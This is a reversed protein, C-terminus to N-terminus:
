FLGIYGFHIKANKFILPNGQQAGLAYSIAFVGVKTGLAIGLGFGYPFDNIEQEVSRTQTYALDGFAYVYSNQGFIVRFEATLVNYWSAFISEEDFGRLIRNGGIRFLENNYLPNPSIIIGSRIRGLVTGWKSIPFFHQHELEFSYQYSRLPISDYLQEYSYDPNNDDTIDLIQTNKRIRKLGFSATVQSSFGKRPNFRYDLNRYQYHVGFTSNRIDLQSPLQRTTRIRLTDINLLNTTTNRWFGKVSNNGGFLYEFGVDVIIDIYSSDRKYLQFGLNTGFPLNAIYPYEFALELESTGVKLQQWALKIRKGTGFPNLLDINVLGTLEIRTRNPVNPDDNPQVGVLIDFQSARKNALFLNIEAKDEVFIIYPPKFTQLYALENIRRQIKQVKSEDYLKGEQLGLYSSLFKRGIRVKGEKKGKQKRANIKIPDLRILPGRNIHLQASIQQEEIRISDLYVQAFPYAHDELYKLLKEQLKEIETYHFPVNQYFREKYGIAQLYEPAIHKADLNAWEYRQGVFLYATYTNQEKFLTDISAELYTKSHLKKLFLGLATELEQKSKFSSPPSFRKIFNKEKDLPILELILSDKQANLM